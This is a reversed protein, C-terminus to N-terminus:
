GRCVRGGAVEAGLEDLGVGTSLCFPTTTSVPESSSSVQTPRTKLLCLTSSTTAGECEAELPWAGDKLSLGGVGGRRTVKDYM